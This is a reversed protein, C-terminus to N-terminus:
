GILARYWTLALYMVLCLQQIIPYSSYLWVNILLTLNSEM